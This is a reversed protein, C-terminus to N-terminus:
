HGGVVTYGKQRLKEALVSEMRVAEEYTMPNLGKYLKPLLSIGFKEVFVSSKYGAKHNKFRESPSLGTMGVYVCPLDPNRGPNIDRVKKMRLIKRELLVVYVNHTRKSRMFLHLQLLM